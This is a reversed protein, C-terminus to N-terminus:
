SGADVSRRSVWATVGAAVLALIGAGWWLASQSKFVTTGLLPLVGGLVVLVRIAVTRRPHMTGIEEETRHDVHM